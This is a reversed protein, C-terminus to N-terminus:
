LSIYVHLFITHVHKELITEYVAPSHVATVIKHSAQVPLTKLM